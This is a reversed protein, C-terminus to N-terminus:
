TFECAHPCVNKKWATLYLSRRSGLLTCVLSSLRTHDRFGDRYDSVNSARPFSVPKPRPKTVSRARSVRFKYLIQVRSESAGFQLKVNPFGKWVVITSFFPYNNSSSHNRGQFWQQFRIKARKPCGIFAIGAGAWKWQFWQFRSWWQLRNWFLFNVSFTGKM